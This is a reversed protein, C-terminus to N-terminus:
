VTFWSIGQNLSLMCQKGPGTKGPAAAHWIGLKNGGEEECSDCVDCERGSPKGRHFRAQWRTSFRHQGPQTRTAGEEGSILEAGVSDNALAAESHSKLAFCGQFLESGLEEEKTGPGEKEWEGVWISREEKSALEHTPRGNLGITRNDPAPCHNLENM